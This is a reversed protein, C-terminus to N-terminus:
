ETQVGLRLHLAQSVQGQSISHNEISAIPLLDILANSLFAEDAALLEEASINREETAMGLAYAAQLVQQRLVGGLV